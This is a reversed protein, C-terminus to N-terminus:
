FLGAKNPSGTIPEQDLDWLERVKGDEIRFLHVLAVSEDGPKHKVWGHIAVLPGEAITRVIEFQKQPNDRHNEDMAKALSGADSAFYPNHHVFDSSAYRDMAARARGRAADQLFDIAIRRNAETEENFMQSPMTTTATTV